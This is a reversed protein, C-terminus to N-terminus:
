TSLPAYISFLLLGQPLGPRPPIRVAHLRRLSHLMRWACGVPPSHSVAVGHAVLFGVGCSRGHDSARLPPVPRGHHLAFGRARAALHARELPLAGLHTEQVALIDADIDATVVALKEQSWHSMNWTGIRLGGEHSAVGRTLSESAMVPPCGRSM